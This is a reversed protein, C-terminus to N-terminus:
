QTPFPPIILSSSRVQDERQELCKSIEDPISFSSKCKMILLRHAKAIDFAAITDTCIQVFLFVLAVVRFFHHNDSILSVIMGILGFIPRCVSFNWSM